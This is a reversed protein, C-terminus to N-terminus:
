GTNINNRSSHGSIIDQGCTILDSKESCIEENQESLPGGTVVKYENLWMKM